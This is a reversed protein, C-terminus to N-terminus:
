ASHWMAVSAVNSSLMEMEPSICAPVVGFSEAAAAAHRVRGCVAKSKDM